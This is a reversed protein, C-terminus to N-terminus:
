FCFQIPTAIKMGKLAPVYSGAIMKIFNELNEPSGGLWFQLSLIYIRADRAKDSPLYKLVKPLTRVLKLMSDAFGAGQKRKFLKFFPSKSQGLQSMSFSGLKNLRMVEPMSPFVLVADMRDRQKEVAAKVKLALEEVFILSGIFINADAVDDCFTSYTGQDRLEEVLYGVVEFSAHRRDANLTQVAASLASQYQAELVVYVVKVRPLGRASDVDEPVIRRVEPNTQTFLGNARAICKIRSGGQLATRLPERSLRPVPFIPAQDLKQSTRSPCGRQLSM